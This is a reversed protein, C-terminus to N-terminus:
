RGVRRTAGLYRASNPRVQEGNRVRRQTSDTGPKLTREVRLGVEGVDEGAEDGSM